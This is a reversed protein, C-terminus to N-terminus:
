DPNITFTGDNVSVSVTYTEGPETTQVTLDKVLQSPQKDSNQLAITFENTSAPLYFVSGAEAPERLVDIPYCTTQTNTTICVYTRDLRSDNGTDFRIGIEQNPNPPEAPRDLEDFEIQGITSAPIGLYLDRDSDTTGLVIRSQDALARMRDSIGSDCKKPVRFTGNAADSVFVSWIGWGYGTSHLMGLVISENQDLQATSIDEAISPVTYATEIEVEGLLAQDALASAEDSVSASRIRDQKGDVNFHYFGNDDVVGESRPVDALEIWLDVQHFMSDIGAVDAGQEGALREECSLGTVPPVEEPAATDVAATESCSALLVTFGFLLYKKLVPIEKPVILVLVDDPEM